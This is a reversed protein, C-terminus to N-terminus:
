DSLLWAAVPQEFLASFAKAKEHIFSLVEKRFFWQESCNSTRKMSDGNTVFIPFPQM